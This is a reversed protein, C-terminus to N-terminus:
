QFVDLNGCGSLFSNTYREDGSVNEGFWEPPQFDAAEEIDAFEVEIFILGELRGHFLDLEGTHGDALPILYRTKQILYGDAKERLHLYGAESLPAELEQNVRTDGDTQGIGYGSKYTLYYSDNSKRIRVVPDKCLYGQEIEKKEYQGLPEPLATVKFKKEIEM